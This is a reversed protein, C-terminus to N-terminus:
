IRLHLEKVRHLFGSLRAVMFECTQLSHRKVYGWTRPSHHDNHDLQVNDALQNKKMNYSLNSMPLLQLNKSPRKEAKDVDVETQARANDAEPRGYSEADAGPTACSIRLERSSRCSKQASPRPTESPIWSYGQTPSPTPSPALSYSLPDSLTKLYDAIRWCIKLFSMRTECFYKM